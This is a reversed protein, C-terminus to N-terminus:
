LFAPHAWTSSWCCFPFLLHLLVPLPAALYRPAAAAATVWPQLHKCTKCQLYHSFLTTHCWGGRGKAAEWGMMKLRQREKQHQAHRTQHISILSSHTCAAPLHKHEAFSRLGKWILSQVNCVGRSSARSAVRQYGLILYSSGVAAWRKKALM